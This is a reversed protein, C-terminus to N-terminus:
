SDILEYAYEVGDAWSGNSSPTYKSMIQILSNLGKDYYDRKLGSTIKEIAEDYGQFAAGSQQGTYIAWGWCNYSNKPIKSCLNSEQFAIGALLRWDTSHRDAEEVMKQGYGYLPSRFKKFFRDLLLPRADGKVISTAIDSLLTPTSTYLEYPSLSDPFRLNLLSEVGRGKYNISQMQIAFGLTIISCFLWVTVLTM